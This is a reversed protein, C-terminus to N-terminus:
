EEESDDAEFTVEESSSNTMQTIFACAKVYEDEYKKVQADTKIMMKTFALNAAHLHMLEVQIQKSHYNFQDCLTHLAKDFKESMSEDKPIGDLNLTIKKSM